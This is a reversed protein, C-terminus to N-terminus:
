VWRGDFSFAGPQPRWSSYFYYMLKCWCGIRGLFGPSRAKVERTVAGVSISTYYPWFLSRPSLPKVEQSVAGVSISTYHHWRPDPLCATQGRSQGNWVLGLINVGFSSRSTGLFVPRRVVADKIGAAPEFVVFPYWWTWWAPIERRHRIPTIKYRGRM